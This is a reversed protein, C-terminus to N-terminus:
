RPAPVEDQGFPRELGRRAAQEVREVRSNLALAARYHAIAQTRNGELDYIRGLYVHSWGLIDPAQAHELVRLFFERAEPRNEEQSAVLALGYLANPDNPRQKLVEDFVARAAEVDGEGLHREGEKLLQTRPDDASDPAAATPPGDAVEAEAFEIRQLRAREAPLNFESFLTPFYYQMSPDDQEYRELALFFHRTLVYGSRERTDIERLAEPYDMKRFRLEAAQILCEAALLVIDNRFAATLRPARNALPLLTEWGKLKLGHKVMLQDLVYHLYQHRVAAGFDAHNPHLALFYHEGYNRAGVLGPPHLLDLYIVYSRGLPSEGTMRLYGRTEFLLQMVEFRRSELAQEYAPRVEQWLAGLRAQQHFQLLVPQFDQVEWVDPPLQDRAVTWEFGPPPSVVMAMSIYTSLLHPGPRTHRSKFYSRLPETVSPDLQALYAEMRAAVPDGPAGLSNTLGGARAACLVAFLQPSADLTVEYSVDARAQGAPLLLALLLLVWGARSSLPTGARQM